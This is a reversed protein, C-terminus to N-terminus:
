RTGIADSVIERIGVDLWKSAKAARILPRGGVVVASRKMGRALEPSAGVEGAKGSAIDRLLLDLKVYTRPCLLRLRAEDDVWVLRAKKRNATMFAGIDEQRDVTPGVRQELPPLESFEPILLIASSKKNDSAALSRAVKFGNVELHRVVHMTTKRLEGWLTDESLEKHSFVVGVVEKRLSPNSRGQMKLFYAMSPSRLFERSALVMRGLKEPSIATALDRRGDVPDPLSFLREGGHRKFGAFYNLVEELNGLKM